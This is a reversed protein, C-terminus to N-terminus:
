VTVSVLTGASGAQDTPLTEGDEILGAVVITDVERVHRLAETRTAARNPRRLGTACPV